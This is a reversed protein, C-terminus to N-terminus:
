TVMGNHWRGVLRAGLQDSRMGLKNSDDILMKNWEPVRQEVKRFCMFSGDTM